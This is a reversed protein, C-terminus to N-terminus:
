HSDFTMPSQDRSPRSGKTSTQGQQLSKTFLSSFFFERHVKWWGRNVRHASKKQGKKGIIYIRAKFVAVIRAFHWQAGGFSVQFNFDEARRSIIKREASLQATVSWASLLLCEFSEWVVEESQVNLILCWNPEPGENLQTPTKKCENPCCMRRRICTQGKKNKCKEFFVFARIRETLIYM